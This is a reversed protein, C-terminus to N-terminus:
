ATRFFRSVFVAVLSYGAIVIGLVVGYIAFAAHAASQSFSSLAVPPMMSMFLLYFLHGTVVGILLSGGLLLLSGVLSRSM